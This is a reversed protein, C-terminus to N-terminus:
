CVARIKMRLKKNINTLNILHPTFSIFYNEKKAKKYPHKNFAMNSGEM